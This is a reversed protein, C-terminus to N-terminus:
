LRRWGLHYTHKAPCLFSGMISWGESLPRIPILGSVPTPRQSNEVVMTSARGATARDRVLPEELRSLAACTRASVPPVANAARRSFFIRSRAGFLAVLARLNLFPGLGSKTRRICCEGLAPLLLRYPSHSRSNTTATPANGGSGDAGSQCTACASAITAKAAQHSM